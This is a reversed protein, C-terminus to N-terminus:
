IEKFKVSKGPYLHLVIENDCKADIVQIEDLMGRWIESILSTLMQCMRTKKDLKNRFIFKIFDGFSM